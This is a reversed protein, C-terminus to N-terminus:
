KRSSSRVGFARFNGCDFYSLGRLSAGEFGELFNFYLSAAKVWVYGGTTKFVPDINLRNQGKSYLGWLEDGFPMRWGGGDIRCNRVWDRAEREGTREDPGVVWELGTINDKIVGEGSVSFRPKGSDTAGQEGSVLLGKGERTGISAIAKTAIYYFRDDQARLQKIAPIFIETGYEALMLCAYYQKIEIGSRLLEELEALYLSRNVAPDTLSCVEKVNFNITTQITRGFYTTKETDKQYFVCYCKIRGQEVNADFRAQEVTFHYQGSRLGFRTLPAVYRLSHPAGAGRQSVDAPACGLLFEGRYHGLGSDTVYLDFLDLYGQGTNSKGLPYSVHYPKQLGFTAIEPTVCGAVWAALISLSLVSVVRLYNSKKM